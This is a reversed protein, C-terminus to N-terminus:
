NGRGARRMEPEVPKFGAPIEFKYADAPASSFSTSTMTMEMLTGSAAPPAQGASRPQEQPPQERPPEEKKKRGFGGFRGLAAGAIASAASERKDQSEARPAPPAATNATTANASTGSAGMKIVSEVPVGDIKALEKAVQEMGQSMNAGGGQMAAMQGMQQLGSGFTGGLKEAMKRHFAKVDDYGPVPAYWADTTMEMAGTDGASNAGEMTMTILMEEANLGQVTKSQGTAKASIKFQAQVDDGKGNKQRSQMRKMADEMAQKMEAFTMVSYTKKANDITTITEKDLDIVSTRDKTISAM